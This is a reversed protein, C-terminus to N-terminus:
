AIKVSLVHVNVAAVKYKTSKEVETKVAEQAACVKEPVSIGYLVNVYIDLTVSGDNLFAVQIHRSKEKSKKDTGGALELGDANEMGCVALSSIVEAYVDDYTQENNKAM